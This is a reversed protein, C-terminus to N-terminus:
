KYDSVLEISSINIYVFRRLIFNRTDEQIKYRTSTKCNLMRQMLESPVGSFTAQLVESCNASILNGDQLSEIVTQLHDVKKRLRVGKQKQVKLARKTDDLRDTTDDLRRKLKRPSETTSYCHDGFSITNAAAEVPPCEQEVVADM